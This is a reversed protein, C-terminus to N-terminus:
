KAELRKLLKEKMKCSLDYTSTDHLLYLKDIDKDMIDVARLLAKSRQIDDSNIEATLEKIGRAFANWWDEPNQESWGSRPYCIPYDRSVSKIIKGDAGVLLIKVSSTGLDIGIDKSLACM